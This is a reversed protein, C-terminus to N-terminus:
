GDAIGRLRNAQSAIDTIRIGFEEDIVVVEGRALHKGNVLVDVPEGALRDLEIISGPVLELVNRIRLETRGLEVSVQLPVDMLLGIDGPVSSAPGDGLTPFAAPQAVM